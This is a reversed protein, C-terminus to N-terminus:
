NQSKLQALSEKPIFHYLRDQMFKKALRKEAAGIYYRITTELRSHGLIHQVTNVPVGKLTLLTATTHRLTHLVFPKAIGSLNKYRRFSRGVDTQKWRSQGNLTLFLFPNDSNRIALYRDIWHLTSHTLFLTRPKRGKGIIPIELNVRDIDKIKISLAEGIRAGTQLLFIALAMMRVKRIMEGEQIDRAITGLFLAIEDESLYIVTRREIKPKRILSLNIRPGILQEKQLYDMFKKMASIVNAIRSNSAGNDKMKLVFRVFDHNELDALRKNGVVRLFNKISDRYKVISSDCLEDSIRVATFFHEILRTNEHYM